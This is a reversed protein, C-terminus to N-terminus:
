TGHQIARAGVYVTSYSPYLVPQVKSEGVCLVTFIHIHIALPPVVADRSQMFQQTRVSLASCSSKPHQSLLIM